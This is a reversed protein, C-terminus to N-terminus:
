PHALRLFVSGLNTDIPIFMRNTTTSDPVTTWNPGLGSGPSNTQAELRWGIRDEPWSVELSGGVVSAVINTPQTNVASVVALSGDFALRNSWILGGNLAPLVITGFAGSYNQAAFLRFSKGASLAGALNTVILTGGYQVLNVGTLVDNTGSGADLEMVNTSGSQFTLVNTVVLTGISFGPRLTSGNAALVSGRIGGNGSLTRGNGLTLTGDSRGSVDLAANNSLVIQLSNLTGATGLALVGESVLTNGQYNNGGNLTLRGAGTKTLRGVGGNGIANAFFVDNTGVDITAGGARFTLTRDSIDAANDPAWQLGGGDFAIASGGGLSGDNFRVLGGNLNLAAVFSNIGNLTLLGPGLKTLAYANFFSNPAGAITGNIVLSGDPASVLIARNTSFHNIGFSFDLNLNITQIASSDNTIGGGLNLTFGGLVFAGANNSFNLSQFESNVTFNNNPTLRTVGAFTLVDYEKPSENLAWNNATNLNNNAGGGDWVKPPIVVIDPGSAGAGGTVVAPVTATADLTYAYPPVFVTDGGTAIKGTCGAYTNGTARIKGDTGADAYLPDKVGAYFNNESLIETGSRANSCYSNNTCNFYNNFMHLRGYSSAPMRQDARTSWWNHHLTIEGYNTSGGNVFGDAIMAFRHQLQTPYIFKCWSVTVFESGNNIDCSGDGCDYFTCHDIWVHHSGPDAGRERISIGDDGPNTIRLNQVIVNSVGSINLYGLLLANTGLGVITKNSATFVKGITIPGQVQVIRPGAINIQTNFDTGNTVVVTPGGAGGTCIGNVTAFGDQGSTRLLTGALGLM